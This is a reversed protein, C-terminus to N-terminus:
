VYGSIIKRKRLKKGLRTRLLDKKRFCGRLKGEVDGDLIAALVHCFDHGNSFNEDRGRVTKIWAKPGKLCTGFCSHEPRNEILLRWVESIKIECKTKCVVRGFDIGKFKLSWGKRQNLFRLRGVQSSMKFVKQRLADASRVSSVKSSFKKIYHSYFHRFADTSAITAELDRKDTYSLNKLQKRKIIEFDRDVVAHTINDLKRVAAQKAFDIVAYKGKGGSKGFDVAIEQQLSTEWIARVVWPEQVFKEFVERDASGEVVLYKTQDYRPATRTFLLDVLLESPKKLTLHDNMTRTPM